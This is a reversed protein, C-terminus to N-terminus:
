SSEVPSTLICCLFLYKYQGPVLIVSSKGNLWNYSAVYEANQITPADEEVLLTRIDISDLVLGLPQPTPPTPNDPRSLGLSHRDQGQWRLRRGSGRSTEGEYFSM